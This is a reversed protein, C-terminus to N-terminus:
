RATRRELLLTAGAGAIALFALVAFTVVFGGNAATVMVIGPAIVSPLTNSLNLLGLDRGRHAPSPLVELALASNLGIFAANGCFFLLFGSTAVLAGPAALMCLAGSACLLAGAILFPRRRGVRDSWRGLALAVLAGLGLAVGTLEGVHAAASEIPGGLMDAFYYLQVILMVASATQLLSRSFWVLGFGRLLREVSQPPEAGVIPSPLTGRWMLVLLPLALLTIAAGLLGLRAAGGSPGFAILLGGAFHAVPAAAILMGGILGKADDPVRDAATALLPALLLNVAAQFLLIAVIIGRANDAVGIVAYSLLTAALGVSIWSRRTGVRAFSRDSGAGWIINFASAGASGILSTIALLQVKGAPDIASVKLPLLLTLLPTYALVGGANALAFCWLFHALRSHAHPTADSLRQQNQRM